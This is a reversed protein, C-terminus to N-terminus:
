PMAVGRTDTQGWLCAHNYTTAVNVALQWAQQNLVHLSSYSVLFANM